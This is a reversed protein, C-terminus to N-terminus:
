LRGVQDDDIRMRGLGRLRQGGLAGQDIRRERIQGAGLGQEQRDFRLHPACGGLLDRRM